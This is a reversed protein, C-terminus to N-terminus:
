KGEVGFCIVNKWIVQDCHPNPDLMVGNPLKLPQFYGDQTHYVYSYTYAYM